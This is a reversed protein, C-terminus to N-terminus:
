KSVDNAEERNLSRTEFAGVTQQYGIPVSGFLEEAIFCSESSSPKAKYADHIICRVVAVCLTGSSESKQLFSCTICLALSTRLRGLTTFAIEEKM